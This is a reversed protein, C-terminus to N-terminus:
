AAQRMRQRWLGVDARGYGQRKLLKLRNGHGEGPGNSWPLTRGAKGAARDERLGQAFRALAESGSTTAESLWADREDGQRERVLALFAQRRTSAQASATDGQTLHDVSIQADQARQAAPGM